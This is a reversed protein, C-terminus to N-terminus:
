SHSRQKKCKYILYFILVLLITAIVVLAIILAMQTGTVASIILVDDQSDSSVRFIGTGNDYNYGTYLYQYFASGLV